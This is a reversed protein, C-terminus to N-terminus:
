SHSRIHNPFCDLFIAGTRVDKAIFDATAEPRLINATGIIAQLSTQQSM